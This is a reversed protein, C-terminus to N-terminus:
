DCNFFAKGLLPFHVEEFLMLSLFSNPSTGTNNHSCYNCYCVGETLDLKNLLSCPKCITCPIYIVSPPNSRCKFVWGFPSM